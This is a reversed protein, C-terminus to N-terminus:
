EYFSKNEEFYTKLRSPNIIHHLYYCHLLDREKETLPQNNRLERSFYSNAFRLKNKESIRNVMYETLVYVTKTFAVAFNIIFTTKNDNV